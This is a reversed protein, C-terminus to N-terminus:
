MMATNNRAPRPPRSRQRRKIPQGNNQDAGCSRRNPIEDGSGVHEAQGHPWRSPATSIPSLSRWRKRVLDAKRWLAGRPQPAACPATGRPRTVVPSPPPCSSAPIGSSSVGSPVLAGGPAQAFTAGTAALLVAAALAKFSIMKTEGIHISQLGVHSLVFQDRKTLRAHQRSRSSDAQLMRHPYRTNRAGTGNFESEVFEVRSSVRTVPDIAQPVANGCLQAPLAAARSLWDSM